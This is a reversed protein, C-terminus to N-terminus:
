RGGAPPALPHAAHTNEVFILGDMDKLLSDAELNSDEGGIAVFAGIYHFLHPEALWGALAGGPPLRRMNLFFLPMGAASLIADGSGEPSAQVPWVAYGRSAGSELGFAQVEGRRLAFGVVYLGKGFRERLWGGMKRSDRGTDASVHLNHAWLIIKENPHAEDALWEANRAMMEDRYGLGKAAVRMNCAQVVVAAAQRADRWADQSSSKSWEARHADFKALVEEARSAAQGAGPLFLNSGDSGIKSAEAYAAEAGPADKPSYRQLYALAADAAAPIAQMDFSTYTLLKGDAATRNYTRMWEVMQREEDFNLRHRPDGEGTKIYRDVLLSDPWNDERALVTFGKERVLYELLRAKMQFFERTGHTAEGLAVIRADGVADGFAKLDEFGNGAEVTALKHARLKLEDVVPRAAEASTLPIDSRLSTEASEKWAWGDGRRVWTDRYSAVSEHQTGNSSTTIHVRVVAIANEGSVRVEAVESRSTRGPQKMAGTIWALLAFHVEGVGLFADPTMLGGIEGADQRAMAADLRAYMKEIAARAAGDDPQAWGLAPLSLAALITWLTRM